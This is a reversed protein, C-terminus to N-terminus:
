TISAPICLASARNIPHWKGSYWVYTGKGQLNNDTSSNTNFIMMGETATGELPSWKEIDNLSVRPVLFGRKDASIVDLFVGLDVAYNNGRPTQSKLGLSGLILLSFLIYIAKKM